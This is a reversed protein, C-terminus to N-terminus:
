PQLSGGVKQEGKVLQPFDQWPGGEGVGGFYNGLAEPGGVQEVWEKPEWHEASVELLGDAGRAVATTTRRTRM